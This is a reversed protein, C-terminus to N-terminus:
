DPDPRHLEPLGRPQLPGAAGPDRRAVVAGDAMVSTSAGPGWSVSYEICALADRHVFATSDARVANIAGGYSDFVMGGGSGASPRASLTTVADVVTQLGASPMAADIYNSKAAFGSRSLTGAPNQSPLHCAEVSSGECGAEILMANLYSEPGVFQYTPATGM